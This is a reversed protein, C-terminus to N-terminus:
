PRYEQFQRDGGLLSERDAAAIVIARSAQALRNDAADMFAGNLGECAM